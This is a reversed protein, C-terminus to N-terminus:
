LLVHMDDDNDTDNFKPYPGMREVILRQGDFKCKLVDGKGVGLETAFEKPLVLTFSREGYLAHVRYIETRELKNM